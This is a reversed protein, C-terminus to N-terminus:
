IAYRWRFGYATKRIGDCCQTISTQSMGMEKTITRACDWWAIENGNMDIQVIPKDLMRRYKPTAKRSKCREPHRIISYMRNYTGTCWELNDVVNNMPNEDKHNIQPLKQPNPIFAEGVLRHILMQKVCGPKRLEVWLRGSNNVKPTLVKAYGHGGYDLSKVNGLNSVQYKGEYGEIDKWVETM